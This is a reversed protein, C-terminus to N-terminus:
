RGGARLKVSLSQALREARRAADATLGMTIEGMIALLETEVKPELGGTPDLRPVLESLREVARELRDLREGRAPSGDGIPASAGHAARWAILDVVNDM